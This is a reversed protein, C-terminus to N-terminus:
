EFVAGQWQVLQFRLHVRPERFLFLRFGLLLLAFLRPSSLEGIERWARCIFWRIALISSQWVQGLPVMLQNGVFTM